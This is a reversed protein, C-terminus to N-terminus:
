SHAGFWDIISQAHVEWDPENLVEHYHDPLLVLKKDECGVDPFRKESASSDVIEDSKAIIWLSPQQIKKVGEELALTVKSTETFWRGTAASLVMPDEKYKKVVEISRSIKSADLETGLKLAPALVSLVKAAAEKVAPVETFGLLPSTIAYAKIQSTQSSYASHYVTILGGNSHGFIYTNLDPYRARAKEVVAELDTAYDSFARIFARKGGSRGHGRCDFSFVAYGARVWASAVHHYRASHEGFGHVLVILGKPADENEWVRWFIDTGDAADFFGSEEKIDQPPGAMAPYLNKFISTPAPKKAM